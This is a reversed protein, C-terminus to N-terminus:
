EGAEVRVCSRRALALFPSPFPVRGVLQLVRQGRVM